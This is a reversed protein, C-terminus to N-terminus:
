ATVSIVAWRHKDKIVHVPIFVEGPVFVELLNINVLTATMPRIQFM